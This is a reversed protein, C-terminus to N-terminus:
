ELSGLSISVQLVAQLWAELIQRTEEPLADRAFLARLQSAALQAFLLPEEHQNDEEREFLRAAKPRLLGHQM